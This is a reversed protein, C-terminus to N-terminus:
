SAAAVRKRAKRAGHPRELHIEYPEGVQVKTLLAVAAESYKHIVTNTGSKVAIHFQNDSSCLDVDKEAKIQDILKRAGHWSPFGLKRGLATTLYPYTANFTQPDSLSTIGLLRPLESDSNAAQELTGFDVELTMKPIDHRVLNYTRAMLARLIKPNVNEVGESAAFADFVWTLDNAQMCHVRMSRGDRLDLVAQRAPYSSEDVLPDHVVYFINPVLEGNGGLIEDIDRLIEIVNDDQAAYGVIVVPHELFFTLLKASLYKKRLCWKEYDEHTLVLERPEDISGHIKFIEGIMMSAARIIKQGVIPTYEPFVEELMLDYNTTIISNPRVKRLASIEALLDGDVDIISGVSSKVVDAVHYKLYIDKSVDEAFLEPPFGERGVGWAFRQYPDVLVSGVKPLSGERQQLYPLEDEILPNEAIVRALLEKWSPGGGYRKAIGSGVFLVPQCGLDRLCEQAVLTQEAIYEAYTPM